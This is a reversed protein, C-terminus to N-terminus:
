IGLKNIFLDEQQRCLKTYMDKDMGCLYQIDLGDRLVWFLQAMSAADIDAAIEGSAQGSLLIQELVEVLRQQAQLWFQRFDEKDIACLLFELKLRRWRNDLINIPFESYILYRLKVNATDLHGFQYFLEMYARQYKREMLTLFIEDKSAFYNYIAGKSSSAEYAIDDISTGQFGKESFCQYAADLIAEKKEELLLSSIKPSM